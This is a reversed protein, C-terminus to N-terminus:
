KICAKTATEIEAQPITDAKSADPYKAKLNDVVCQCITKMGDENKPNCTKMFANLVEPETWSVPTAGCGVVLTLLVASISKKISGSIKM